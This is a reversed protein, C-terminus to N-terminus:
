QAKGNMMFTWKRYMTMLLLFRDNLATGKLKLINNWQEQELKQLIFATNDNNEVHLAINVAQRFCKPIMSLRPGNNEIRINILSCAYVLGAFNCGATTATNSLIFFLLNSMMFMSHKIYQLHLSHFAKFLVSDKLVPNSKNLPKLKEFMRTVCSFQGRYWLLSDILRNANCDNREKLQKIDILLEWNDM